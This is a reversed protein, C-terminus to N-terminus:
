FATTEARDNGVERLINILNKEDMNEVIIGIFKYAPDEPGTNPQDSPIHPENENSEIM